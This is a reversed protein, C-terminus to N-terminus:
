GPFGHTRRHTLMADKGIAVNHDKAIRVLEATPVQAHACTSVWAALDEEDFSAVWAELTPKVSAQVEQLREALSM